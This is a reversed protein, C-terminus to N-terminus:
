KELCKTRHEELEFIFLHKHLCFLYSFFDFWIGELENKKLNNNKKELSFSFSVLYNRLIMIEILLLRTFQSFKLNVKLNTEVKQSMKLNKPEFTM